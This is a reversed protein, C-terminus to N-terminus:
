TTSGDVTSGCTGASPGRTQFDAWWSEALQKVRTEPGIETDSGVRSRDRLAEKLAREAAGRTTRTREVLRSRGDLDRYFCRATWQGSLDHWVRIKGGTALSLPPRGM